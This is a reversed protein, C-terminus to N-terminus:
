NINPSYGATKLPAMPPFRSTGPAEAFIFEPGPRPERTSATTFERVSNVQILRDMFETLDSIQVQLTELNAKIRKKILDPSRRGNNKDNQENIDTATEKIAEEGHASM